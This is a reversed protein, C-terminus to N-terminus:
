VGIDEVLHKCQQILDMYFPNHSWTPNIGPVCHQNLMHFDILTICWILQIFSLVTCGDWGSCFLCKVFGVAMSILGVGWVPPWPSCAHFTVSQSPLSSSTMWFWSYSLSAAWRSPIGPARARDTSRTFWASPNNVNHPQQTKWPCHSQEHAQRASPNSGTGEHMSVTYKQVVQEM